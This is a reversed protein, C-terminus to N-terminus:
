GSSIASIKLPLILAKIRLRVLGCITLIVQEYKHPNLRFREQVVRFIKVSRIRHEVFIRQSSFAKNDEKQKPTLERNKPNKIPTTILDEGVYAKDGKFRQQSDFESRYERFLTIDSKPGPEGAVADVIDSGDPLIILQSKFTHNSKKGSFYKKQENNDGPRERVQEYSDVILEYDTLIEKVVEYDSANKKVQELLSSPLLERLNPLWYNFTDNATSESVGFQIGLLQFTIMHRLYVLTLIIQETMSLKPKRGGGGAIIRVKKSELLVQKENHLREANQILQQLQEYELGILRQTEKPNDEIYK